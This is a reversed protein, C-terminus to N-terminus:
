MLSQDIPGSARRSGLLPIHSVVNGMKAKVGAVEIRWDLADCFPPKDTLTALDSGQELRGLTWGVSIHFCMDQREMKAYLPPQKFRAAVTNCRTLLAALEPNADADDSSAIRLVLFTRNSDPSPFWALGTLRVTFAATTSTAQGRRPVASGQLLQGLHALFAEKEAGPLSMPRSLSIHLPLPASLDSTLLSHLKFGDALQAAVADVLQCLVHHQKTTPHWEIYIHSPWNGRIHPIQRKRGQHLSPDDVVSHRVTSAYLDHFAAPLPPMASEYEGCAPSPTGVRRRRKRKPAEDHHNDSEASSSYDVLAM